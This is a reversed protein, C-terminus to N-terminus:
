RVENQREKRRIADGDRSRGTAQGDWLRGNRTADSKKRGPRNLRGSGTNGAAPPAGPFYGSSIFRQDIWRPGTRFLLPHRGPRLAATELGGSFKLDNKSDRVMIEPKESEDWKGNANRDITFEVQEVGSLDRVSRPQSDCRLGRPFKKLRRTSSWPWSRPLRRM